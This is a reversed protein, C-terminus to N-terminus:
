LTESAESAAKTNLADRHVAPEALRVWPSARLSQLVAPDDAQYELTSVTYVGTRSPGSIIQANLETMLGRMDAEAAGPHFMVRYAQYTHAAESPSAAAGPESLTQYELPAGDEQNVLLAVVMVLAASQALALGKFGFPLGQWGARYDAWAQQLRTFLSQKAASQPRTAGVTDADELADIMGLTADLNREMASPRLLEDLEEPNNALQDSIQQAQLQAEFCPKCHAVHEQVARQQASSLQGNIYSPLLLECEEHSLASQKNTTM